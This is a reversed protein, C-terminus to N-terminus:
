RLVAGASHTRTVLPDYGAASLGQGLAFVSEGLMAMAAHGGAESVDEVTRRVQPTLLDAERAFRRSAFALTTLTPERVLRSLARRGAETIVETDGDVVDETAIEGFTVVEVRARRPVADLTGHNPGGPDLRIPVGGHAQAVVDGLGTGAEVEAGHAITTLENTSLQRDYVHNVALATGLTTAGSVGFGAGVPLDTEAEVVADADLARLVREVAAMEVSEDNLVVAPGEGRRVRVTVGEALTVGAGRSGAKTPNDDREVTFFGTVHGPVFATAEDSM